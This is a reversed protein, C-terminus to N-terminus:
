SDTRNVAALMANRIEVVLGEIGTALLVAKTGALDHGPPEVLYPPAHAPLSPLPRFAEDKLQSALRVLTELRAELASPRGAGSPGIWPAQMDIVSPLLAQTRVLQEIDTEIATRAENAHSRHTGPRPYGPRPQALPELQSLRRLQKAGEKLTALAQWLRTWEEAPAKEM